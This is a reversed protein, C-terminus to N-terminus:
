RITNARISYKDSTTTITWASPYAGTIVNISATFIQDTGSGDYALDFRNLGATIGIWYTGAALWAGVPTALWRGAGPMSASNSLYLGAATATGGQAILTGPATSNDTTILVGISGINDTSPRLYADISTVLCANALTVQKCYVRKDTLTAWSGGVTNYGVFAQTISGGGAGGSMLTEVGADDKSYMLGDSKAYTVVKGSAPTSPAAAEPWTLKPVDIADIKAM